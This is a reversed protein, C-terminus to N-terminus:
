GRYMGEYVAKVYIRKAEFLDALEDHTIETELGKEVKFFRWQHNEIRTRLAIRGM